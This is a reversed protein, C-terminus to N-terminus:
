RLPAFRKLLVAFRKLLVTRVSETFRRLGAWLLGAAAGYVHAISVVPVDLKVGNLWILKLGLALLAAFFLVRRTRMWGLLAMGAWLGHLVGSLGAYWLLQPEFLWFLSSIALASFVCLSMWESATFRDWLLESLVYLGLLNFALHQISLHVLHASLLRWYQYQSLAAREWMLYSLSAPWVLLGACM